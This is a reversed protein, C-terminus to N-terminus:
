RPRVEGEYLETPFGRASTVLLYTPEDPLLYSVQFQQPSRCEALPVESPEIQVHLGVGSRYAVARLEKCDTPVFGRLDLTDGHIQVGASAPYADIEPGSVFAIPDQPVARLDPSILAQVTRPQVHCKDAGVTTRVVDAVYGPKRLVITHRGPFEGEWNGILVLDDIAALDTVRGSEHRSTGTVGRAAPLGTTPDRVEVALTSRLEATCLVGFGDSCGGLVPLAALWM